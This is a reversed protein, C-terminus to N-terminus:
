EFLGPTNSVIADFRREPSLLLHGGGLIINKIENKGIAPNTLRECTMFPHTVKGNASFAKDNKTNFTISDIISKHNFKGNAAYDSLMKFLWVASRTPRTIRQSNSEDNSIESIFRCFASNSWVFVDLCKEALVPSKGETKWIPQLLFPSQKELLREVEFFLTGRTDGFGLQKGAYSFSQCPFGALLVDFDPLYTEQTIDGYPNEHFNSEYTECARKDIEVSKVCLSKAGIKSIAQEFGLRIGGTGAFLDVFRIM